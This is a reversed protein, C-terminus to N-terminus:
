PYQIALLTWRSVIRAAPSITVQSGSSNRGTWLPVTRAELIQVGEVLFRYGANDYDFAGLSLSLLFGVSADYGHAVTLRTSASVHRVFVLSNRTSTRAQLRAGTGAAGPRVFPQVQVTPLVPPPSLHADFYHAGLTVAM